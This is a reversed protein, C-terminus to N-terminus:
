ANQLARELMEDSSRMAPPPPRKRYTHLNKPLVGDTGPQMISWRDFWVFVSPYSTLGARRHRAEAVCSDRGQGSRDGPRGFRRPVFPFGLQNKYASPFQVPTLGIRASSPPSSILFCGCRNLRSSTMSPSNVWRCSVAQTGPGCYQRRRRRRCDSCRSLHNGRPPFCLLNRSQYRQDSGCIGITDVKM